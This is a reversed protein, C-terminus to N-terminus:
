FLKLDGYALKMDFASKCINGEFSVVMFYDTFFLFQHLSTLSIAQHLLVNLLHFSRRVTYDTM